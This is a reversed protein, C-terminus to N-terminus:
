EMRNREKKTTEDIWNDGFWAFPCCLFRRERKETSVEKGVKYLKSYHSTM